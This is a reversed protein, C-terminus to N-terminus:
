SDFSTMKVPADKTSMLVGSDDVELAGYYNGVKVYSDAELRATGNEANHLETGDIVLSAKYSDVSSLAIPGNAIVQANAGYANVGYASYVNVDGATSSLGLGADDIKVSGYEEATLEVCESASM